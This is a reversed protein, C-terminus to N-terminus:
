EFKEIEIRIQTLCELKEALDMRRFEEGWKFVVNRGEGSPYVELVTGHSRPINM